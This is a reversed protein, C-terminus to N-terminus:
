VATQLGAAEWATIGGVLDMVQEFGYHMLVSGAITSRYGGACHVIIPRDRPLRGVQKHLQQLPINTSDPIHSTEREGAGRVDIVVPAQGEDRQEKLTLVTIRELRGLLDPRDNLSMMGSRLYGAVDDFGIRGLRTAAEEEAGPPAIIVIPRDPTLLAGAWTAFKGDLGVNISGILHAGAYDDGERVDLVQAQGDRLTLVEDLELPKLSGELSEDLTPHEKTNMMVDYSFYDPAEPQDASVIRIFDDKEMPQLAYNYMRQTGMTSYTEESLSKGCLSGAGHAPYVLADDPVRQMLKGHLSDYLMGGLSEATLGPSARLDPRGVDGIFLTDGTLVAHPKDTSQALDYVLLCISDPSHGPTDLFVVRVQGFAIEDDDGMPVSAYETKAAHGVHITAGCRDRLELHGAVFDAHMHTLVVHRITLGQADADTLYQGIDRQPDVVIANKTQEDGVLYSAHALCGLYYQKLFM